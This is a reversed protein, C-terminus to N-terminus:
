SVRWDSGRPRINGPTAGMRWGISIVRSKKGRLGTVTGLVRWTGISDKAPEQNDLLFEAWQGSGYHVEVERTQSILSKEKANFRIRM